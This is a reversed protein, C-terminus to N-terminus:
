RWTDDGETADSTVKSPMWRGGDAVGVVLCPPLAEGHVVYGPVAGELVRGVVQLGHSTLSRLVAYGIATLLDPCQFPKRPLNTM